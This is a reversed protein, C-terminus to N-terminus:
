LQQIYGEFNDVRTLLPCILRLKVRLPNFDRQLTPGESLYNTIGCTEVKKIPSEFRSEFRNTKM